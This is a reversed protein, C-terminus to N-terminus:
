EVTLQKIKFPIKHIHALSPSKKGNLSTFELLFIKGSFEYICDKVGGKRKFKQFLAGNM